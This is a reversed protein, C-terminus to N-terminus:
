NAFLSTNHKGKSEIIAGIQLIYESSSVCARPFEKRSTIVFKLCRKISDFSLVSEEVHHFNLDIFIKPNADNVSLMVLITHNMWIPHFCVSEHLEAMLKHLTGIREM